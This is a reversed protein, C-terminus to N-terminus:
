DRGKDTMRQIHDWEEDTMDISVDDSEHGFEQAYSFDSGADVLDSALNRFQGISPGDLDLEEETM